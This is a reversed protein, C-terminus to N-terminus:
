ESPNVPELRIVWAVRRQHARFEAQRAACPAPSPPLPHSFMAWRDDPTTRRTFHMNTRLDYIWLKKTWPTESAPKKDFFLVNAKVGQDYFLGTPMRQITCICVRATTDLTNSTDLRSM